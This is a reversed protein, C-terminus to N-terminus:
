LTGKLALKNLGKLFQAALHPAICHEYTKGDPALGRIRGDELFQSLLTRGAQTRDKPDPTSADSAAPGPIPLGLDLLHKM